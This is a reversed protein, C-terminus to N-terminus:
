DLTRENFGGWIPIHVVYASYGSLDKSPGYRESARTAPPVPCMERITERSVISPADGLPSSRTGKTKIYVHSSCHEPLSFYDPHACRNTEVSIGNSCHEPSGGISLSGPVTFSGFGAKRQPNCVRVHVFRLSVSLSPDLFCCEKKQM